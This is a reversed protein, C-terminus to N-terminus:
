TLRREHEVRQLHYRSLQLSTEADLRKEAAVNELSAQEDVVARLPPEGQGVSGEDCRSTEIEDNGQTFHARPSPDSSSITCVEDISLFTLREHSPGQVASVEGIGRFRTPM